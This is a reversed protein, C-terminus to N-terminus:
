KEAKKQRILNRMGVFKTDLLSGGMPVVYSENHTCGSSVVSITEKLYDVIKVKKKLWGSRSLMKEVKQESIVGVIDEYFYEHVGECFIQGTVIDIYQYYMYLQDDGFMYVTIAPLSFRIADDSGLKMLFAPPLQRLNEITQPDVYEEKERKTYTVYGLAGAGAIAAIILIVLLATKDAVAFAFTLIIGAFIATAVTLSHRANWYRIKNAIKAFFGMALNIAVNDNHAVGNLVVPEVREIQDSIINLKELGKRKAEEIRYQIEADYEREGRKDFSFKKYIIWVFGGIILIAGIILFLVGLFGFENDDSASKVVLAFGIFMAGIVMLLEQFANGRGYFYAYIKSQRLITEKDM